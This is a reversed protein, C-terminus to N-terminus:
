RTVDKLLAQWNEAFEAELIADTALPSAELRADRGTMTEIAQIWDTVSPGQAATAGYPIHDQLGDIKNVMLQRGASLAEIAVLGYAEWRSPMAVADVAAMAAIPNPAFGKFEIRPDDGALARLTQEESGEGFIYLAIDKTDTLRFAKILTDFGKQPDLRGIAGIIRVPGSHAPIARFESLDVCSRIVALANEKVAGSDRLWAGQADSVAVVRNFLRYSIRLLAAFRGTKTVNELVFNETYSHEIHVLATKPHRLRLSMLMPLSRWSIALHSVIVDAKIHGLSLSKRDVSQLHHAAQKSLKPATLIHDLVRMVGGATTDDVLHVVRM